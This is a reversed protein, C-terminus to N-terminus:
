NPDLMKGNYLQNTTYPPLLLCLNNSVFLRTTMGPIPSIGSAKALVNGSKWPQIWFKLNSKIGYKDIKKSKLMGPHVFCMTTLFVDKFSGLEMHMKFEPSLFISLIKTYVKCTM